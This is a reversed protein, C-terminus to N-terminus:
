AFELGLRLVLLMVLVVGLRVRAKVRVRVRDARARACNQRGSVLPARAGVLGGVRRTSTPPESPPSICPGSNLGPRPRREDSLGPAGLRVKVRVRM